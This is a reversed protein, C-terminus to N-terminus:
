GTVCKSGDKQVVIQGNNSVRIYRSQVKNPSSLKICVSIVGGDTDDFSFNAEPDPKKFVIDIKNRSVNDTGDVGTHDTILGDIVFGSPLNYTEIPEGDRNDGGIPPDYSYDSPDRDVSGNRDAWLFFTSKDKDFHIGWSRFNELPDSTIDSARTARSYVQAGRVYIAVEQAVVDISLGGKMTPLNMLVIATMIAVIALVVTMELLTFGRRLNATTKRRNIPLCNM